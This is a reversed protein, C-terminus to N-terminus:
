LFVLGQNREIIKCKSRPLEACIDKQVFQMRTNHKGSVVLRQKGYLVVTGPMPRGMENYGRTSKRVKLKAVDHPHKARFEALSDYEKQGKKVNSQGTRKHRNKCVIKGNLYYSRESQYHVRARDHRRFQQLDYVKEYDPACEPELGCAAVGICWADMYHTGDDLKKEPFGYKIRADQTEKGTTVFTPYMKGYAELLYPMIENILSIANYKKLLGIKKKKLAAAKKEDKHVADHCEKCLGAINDISDSGGQSRPVIHHYHEIDKCGCLLCKGNHHDAIAERANKYGFLRGKQYEWNRIGPNEMRAFDFRNIEVAIATIPLFKAMIEVVRIHTNLLNRASPTLWGIPRKRNNFKSETNVIAKCRVAKKCGPLMRYIETDELTGTPDNKVARRQRRKREGRRSAQRHQKKEAMHQKVFANDTTVRTPLLSHGQKDLVDEGINTRGPDICVVCPQLGLNTVQYTLRITFPQYCAICAKGTKLMRRVRAYNHSPMLPKGDKNLVYINPM